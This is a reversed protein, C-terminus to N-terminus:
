NNQLPKKGPLEFPPKAIGRKGTLYKRKISWHRPVPVTNKYAKLFVLTKPDAATVDVWEVAEPHKVLQKLQAIGMRKLKRYKKKTM